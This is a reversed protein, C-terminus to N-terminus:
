TQPAEQDAAAPEPSTTAPSPSEEVEISSAVSRVGPVAAVAKVIDPIAAEARVFGDLAVDGLASRVYIRGHRFLGAADLARGVDIELKHDDVVADVVAIVGLVSAAATHVYAKAQSTRVNGSLHAVEDVVEVNLTRRDDGTLYPHAALAGWVAEVLESDPRYVPLADTQVALRIAGGELTVGQVPVMRRRPAFLGCTILLHSARRSNGDVLAGALRADRVSLPTRVSLPRPPVPVPPVQRGFAEESTCDLSLSDDDWRGAASFPLKVQLPRMIGRRLVLNLVRWEDDIELAALRGQWRDRFRVPCRLRLPSRTSQM